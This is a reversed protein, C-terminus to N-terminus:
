RSERYLQAAHRLSRRAMSRDRNADYAWAVTFWARWDGANLEAQARANDFIAQAADETLQGNPLREGDHLPLGGEAELEDAMRQVTTGLRWEVLVYWAGIAPLVLLAVGLGKAAWADAGLFAFAYQAVFALYLCLLVTMATAALFAPRRFIGM